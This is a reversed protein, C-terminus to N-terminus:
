PRKERGRSRLFLLAVGAALSLAAWGIARHTQCERAQQEALPGLRQDWVEVRHIEAEASHYYRLTQSQPHRECQGDSLTLGYGEPYHYTPIYFETPATIQPDHRFEFTFIRRRMDFAAHRPEGAVARAYPRIVAELARGGDYLDGTGMQQDRSFISLDEGNWQDGHINDNDATYNWLTYSLLNAELAQISTDLAQAQLYFDGTRYAKGGQLDYPIGIEGILTPINQMYHAATQKLQAMQAAFLRRVRTKGVVPRRTAADGTFWPIFNKTLLTLGDYWHAAHVVNPADTESWHLHVEEVAIGPPLGEIFILAGPAVSRIERIYRLAFPRFYDRYFDVERDGVRSFHHPRLLRPQGDAGVDWVGNQKWLPEYGERWLSVGDPNLREKGVRRNQLYRLEWIEVEQPYGAGLVMAQFPTPMAGLKLPSAERTHLDKLGIWGASPENLTDYGVVNPLDKLRLALQKIANIYHQQLYEQVPVSDIQTQPAFDHGGFFLTFLTAAALRAYNTPWIMRPFPDGHVNHILAAGTATFRTIDMGLLEFTWGPAGDGGSFRSWVDQHPDIFLNIGHAAAREVIQYVYDLYAEDYLGPGAHEIAEWTVLFRLFPLGWEKLRAFHEDAEDLPFPRGVFSVARHEFFGERVHSPLNLPVKTSGGLNVGRLLVTRGETDKFWPGVIHLM